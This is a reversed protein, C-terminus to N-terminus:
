SFLILFGSGTSFEDTYSKEKSYIKIQEDMCSDLIFRRQETRSYFFYLAWLLHNKLDGYVILADVVSLTAAVRCTTMEQWTM